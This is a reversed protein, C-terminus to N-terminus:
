EFYACTNSIGILDLCAVSLGQDRSCVWGGRMSGYGDRESNSLWFWSWLVWSLWGGALLMRGADAFFAAAAAFPVGPRRIVATIGNHSRCISIFM